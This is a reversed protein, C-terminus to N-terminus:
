DTYISALHKSPGFYRLELGQLPLIKRREMDDVGARPNVLDGMWHTGPEKGPHLAAPAHLQGSVEM